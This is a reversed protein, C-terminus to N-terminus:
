HYCRSSLHILVIQQLIREAEGCTQIKEYFISFFTIDPKKKQEYFGIEKEVKEELDTKSNCHDYDCTNCRQKKFWCDQWWVQARFLAPVLNGAIGGAGLLHRVGTPVQIVDTSHIFSHIFPSHSVHFRDAYKGALSEM